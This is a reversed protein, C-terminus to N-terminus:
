ELDVPYDPWFDINLKVKDPSVTIGSLTLEIIILNVTPKKPFKFTTVSDVTDYIAEFNDPLKYSVGWLKGEYGKDERIWRGKKGTIALIVQIAEKGGKIKGVTAQTKKAYGKVYKKNANEVYNLVTTMDNLAIGFVQVKTEPDFVVPYQVPTIGEFQDADLWEIEPLRSKAKPCHPCWSPALGVLRKSQVLQVNKYPIFQVPEVKQPSPFLTSALMLYSITSLM